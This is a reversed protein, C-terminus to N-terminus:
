LGGAGRPIGLARAAAVSWFPATCGIGVCICRPRVFPETRFLLVSLLVAEQTRVPEAARARRKRLLVTHAAGWFALNPNWDVGSADPGGFARRARAWREPAGTMKSEFELNWAASLQAPACDSNPSSEASSVFLEGGPACMWKIKGGGRAAAALCGGLRRRARSVWASPGARGVFCPM